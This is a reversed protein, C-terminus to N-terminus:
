RVTSMLLQKPVAHSGNSTARYLREKYERAKYVTYPEPVFRLRATERCIEELHEAINRPLLGPTPGRVLPRTPYIM